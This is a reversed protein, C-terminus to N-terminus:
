LCRPSVQKEEPVQGDQREAQHEHTIASKQQWLSAQLSRSARWPRRWRWVALAKRPSGREAREKLKGEQEKIHTPQETHVNIINM